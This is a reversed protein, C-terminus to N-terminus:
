SAVGTASGSTARDIARAVRAPDELQPYHGLDEWRELPANPRLELIGDLVNGTAIPDRMGWVLELRGPWDRIAGHWRRGHIRREKNYFTLKDLIRNGRNNALLSWQDAAEEDSLPHDPSFIRGFNTRFARENSLRALVPGFRSLLIKQSRTLSAREVIMSGNFLMVTSLELSGRGEIDRAMLENAVTTGMDHAIVTVPGGVFREAVAEAIDAQEFLSYVHDRPKDSLGFGLFDFSVFRRGPLLELLGRWDYSSSPYGHLFLLSPGEGDRRRVFIRHGNVEVLGGGARWEEVRQTLGGM